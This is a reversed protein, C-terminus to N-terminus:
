EILDLRLIGGREDILLLNNEPAELVRTGKRTPTTRLVRGDDPDLM